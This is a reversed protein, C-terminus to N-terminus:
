VFVHIHTVHTHSRLQFPCWHVLPFNHPLTDDRKKHHGGKSEEKGSKVQESGVVRPHCTTDVPGNGEVLLFVDTKEQSSSGPSLGVTPGDDAVHVSVGKRKCNGGVGTEVNGIDEKPTTVCLGICQFM